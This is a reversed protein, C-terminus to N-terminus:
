PAGAASSPVSSAAAAATESSSATSAVAGAYAAKNAGEKNRAIEIALFQIRPVITSNAESYDQSADLRLLTGFNYDQPAHMCWHQWFVFTRLCYRACGLGRCFMM